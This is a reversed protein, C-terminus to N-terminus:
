QKRENPKNDCMRNTILTRDFRKTPTPHVTSTDTVTEIPTISAQKLTYGLKTGDAALIRINDGCSFCQEIFDIEMASAWAFWWRIFSNAAMFKLPSSLRIYRANIVKCFGSFTQKSTLVAEVFEWGVEYGCAISKTLLFLSDESGDYNRICTDAVCKRGFLKAECAGTISYVSIL